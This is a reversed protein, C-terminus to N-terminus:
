DPNVRWPRAEELPESGETERVALPETIVRGPGPPTGHPTSAIVPIVVHGIGGLCMRLQPLAPDTPMEVAPNSLGCRGHNILMSCFAPLEEAPTITYSSADQFWVGVGTRERFFALVGELLEDRAVYSLKPLSM